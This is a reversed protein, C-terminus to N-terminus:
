RASDIEFFVHGYSNIVHTNKFVTMRQATNEFEQHIHGHIFYRPSFRTILSRYSKFGRHCLDEADHIFRPPAHTVIFDISKHWWLTPVLKFVIRRMQAETYQYRGGNYWRSGEFGVINLGKFKILRAHANMCGTPPQEVYRIDHNGAVYLLPVNFVNRLFRLYEPPLDGCALILEVGEYRQPAKEDYLSTEIRDSVSLIKMTFTVFFLLPRVM